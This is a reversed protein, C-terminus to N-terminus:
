RGRIKVGDEVVGRTFTYLLLVLFICYKGGAKGCGGVCIPIKSIYFISAM